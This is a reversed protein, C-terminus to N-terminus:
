AEAGVEDCYPELGRRIDDSMPKKRKTGPDVFVHRLEGDVLLSEDRWVQMHTVMSTNGLRTVHAVLDIEDDFAASDLYRATAEAVVMDTGSDLMHEYSGFAERWLETIALDFYAFYNANFVVGQPDCEAYRVRIRHRFSRAMAPLTGGPLPGAGRGQSTWIRSQFAGQDAIAPMKQLVGQL